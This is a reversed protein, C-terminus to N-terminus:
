VVVVLNNLLFSPRRPEKFNVWVEDDDYHRPDERVLVWSGSHWSPAWRFRLNDRNTRKGMWPGSSKEESDEFMAGSVLVIEIKSKGFQCTGPGSYSTGSKSFQLTPFFTEVNWLEFSFTVSCQCKARAIICTGPKKHNWSMGLQYDASIYKM